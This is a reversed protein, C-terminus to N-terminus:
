AAVLKGTPSVPLWWCDARLAGGNTNQTACTIIVNATILIDKHAAPVAVGGVASPATTTWFENADVTTSSTGAVFLTTSGTVGLAISATPAAETLDVSCFVSLYAVLVQGTVTFLTTTTGAQGLNAAGTFTVSKSVYYGMAGVGPRLQWAAGDYIYTCGSDTELFISGAPPATPKADSSLGVFTQSSGIKVVTM